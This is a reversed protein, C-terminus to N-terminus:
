EKRKFVITPIVAWFKESKGSSIHSNDQAMEKHLVRFIGHVSASEIFYNYRGYKEIRKVCDKSLKGILQKDCFISYKINKDNEFRVIKLSDGFSFKSLIRQVDEPDKTKKAFGINIDSIELTEVYTSSRVPLKEFNETLLAPRCHVIENSLKLLPDILPNRNNEFDYIYLAERARTMAVYFVRRVEEISNSVRKHKEDALIIVADFELGKASHMTALLVGNKIFTSDGGSRTYDYIYSIFYLPLVEIGEFEECFTYLLHNFEDKYNQPLVIQASEYFRNIINALEIHNILQQPLTRLYDIMLAIERLGYLPLKKKEFRRTVIGAAACATSVTKLELNTRSLVAIKNLEFGCNNVLHDIQCAVSQAQAKVDEVRAIIVRGLDNSLCKEEIRGGPLDKERAKNIVPMNETKKMRDVNESILANSAAIINKTSRYNESMYIIEANYDDEFCRIFKVNSGNFSYINQDDDGVALLKVTGHAKKNKEAILSVLNYEAKNIDQYEDVLIYTYNHFNFSSHEDNKSKKVEVRNLIEVADTLVKEFNIKGDDSKLEPPMKGCIAMALAHYTYIDVYSATKGILKRLERRIQLIAQRNFAVVLISRPNNRLVKILYAVRHVIIRTKGSGPGAVVLRARRNGEYSVVKQQVPNNLDSSIKQLTAADTAYKLVDREQKTEFYKEIFSDTSETFYDGIFKKLHEFGIAADAAIGRVAYKIIMHIFAIKQEYYKDLPDFARKLDYDAEPLRKVRIRMAPNFIGLGNQLKIIGNEHMFLLTKEYKERTQSEGGSGFLTTTLDSESFRVYIDHGETNNSLEILDKLISHARENRDNIMEEIHKIRMLQTIFFRNRSARSIRIAGIDRMAYIVALIDNTSIDESSESIESYVGNIDMLYGSTNEPDYIEHGDEYYADTSIIGVISSELKHFKELKEFSDNKVANSFYASFQVASSLISLESLHRLIKIIEAQEVGTAASMADTHFGNVDSIAPGYVYNLISEYQHRKSLPLSCMDLSLLAESLDKKIFSINIFSVRNELREVLDADELAAIITKVKIDYMNDDIDFDAETDDHMLIEGSTAIIEDEAIDVLKKRKKSLFSSLGRYVGKIDRETVKSMVHLMFQREADNVNYLLICRSAAGDRGARGAEQIYNELSGPIDAHIVLRVDPKDIGMGFANTATIVKLNGSIFKDQIDKKDKFRGAHYYDCNIGRYGLYESFHEARKKTATYIIVSGEENKVLEFIKDKKENELTPHVEYSLNDREHGGDIVEIDNAASCLTKDANNPGSESFRSIIESIVSLKATATFFCVQIKENEGKTKKIFKPIYLYDPRFDHGWKSLCHAEDIVFLGIRRQLLVDIFSKNRLQEPAAYVIDFNGLMIGELASKREPASLGGYIATVQRYGFRERLVDVQDKMLAQLPSIVLTLLKKRHALIMAPLQYCLSKGASTPMLALINKGAVIKQVVTEQNPKFREFGFFKKLYNEVKSGESCYACDCEGPERLEEIIKQTEPHSHYVWPSLVSNKDSVKIWSVAYAFSRKFKTDDINIAKNFLEDFKTKCMALGECERSVLKYINESDVSKFINTKDLKSLSALEFITWNGSEILSKGSCFLAAVFWLYEPPVDLFEGIEADLVTECIMCDKLPDNKSNTVLKYDKILKHYPNKPFAVPSLLLTDILPLNFVPSDPKYKKLLEIDHELINHGCLASCGDAAKELISFAESNWSLNHSIGNKSYIGIRAINKLDPATEIDIFLIKDIPEQMNLDKM